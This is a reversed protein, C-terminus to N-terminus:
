GGRDIGVLRIGDVTAADLTLVTDTWTDLCALIPERPGNRWAASGYLEDERRSRDTLDDFARILFAADPDDPSRGFAVVDMGAAELLPLAGEHFLRRLEPWAGSRLRYSRIEVLRTM